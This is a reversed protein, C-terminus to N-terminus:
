TSTNADITKVVNQPPQRPIYALPERQLWGRGGESPKARLTSGRGTIGAVYRAAKHVQITEHEWRVQWERALTGLKKSRRTGMWVPSNKSTVWVPPPTNRVCNADISDIAQTSGSLLVGAGPSPIRRSRGSILSHFNLTPSVNPDSTGIRTFTSVVGKIGASFRKHTLVDLPYEKEEM